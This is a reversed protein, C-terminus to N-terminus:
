LPFDPDILFSQISASSAVGSFMAATCLNRLANQLLGSSRARHLLRRSRRGSSSSDACHNGCSRRSLARFISFDRAADEFV